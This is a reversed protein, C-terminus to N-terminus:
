RRHVTLLVDFKYYAYQLVYANSLPKMQIINIVNSVQLCFCDAELFCTHYQHSFDKNIYTICSLHM